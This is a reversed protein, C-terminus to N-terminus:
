DGAAKSQQKAAAAGFIITLGNSTLQASSIRGRVHAIKAPEFVLTDGKAAVGDVSESGLLSGLHVGVMGLLGKMPIGEAKIKKAHLILVTGDSSIPGEIEFPIDMGKHVKGSLHAVDNKIEVKVDSVSSNSQQVKQAFLKTLSESSIFVEGHEVDTTRAFCLPSVKGRAVMHASFDKINFIAGDLPSYQGKEMIMKTVPSPCRLQEALGTCCCFLVFAALLLSTQMVISDVARRASRRTRISCNTRNV